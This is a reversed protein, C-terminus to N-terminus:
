GNLNQITKSVGRGIDGSHEIMREKVRQLGQKLKKEQSKQKEIFSSLKPKGLLDKEEAYEKVKDPYLKIFDPNLELKRSMRNYSHPQVFDAGHQRQDKEVEIRHSSRMPTIRGVGKPHSDWYEESKRKCELCPLVGYTNDIVAENKLCKPCVIHGGIKLRNDVEM